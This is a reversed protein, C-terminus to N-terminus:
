MGESRLSRIEELVVRRLAPDSELFVRYDLYGTSCHSAWSIARSQALALVNETDESAITTFEMSNQAIPCSVLLVGPAGPLNDPSFTKFEYKSLITAINQM